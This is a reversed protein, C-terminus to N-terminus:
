KQIIIAGGDKVLQQGTTIVTENGKLGALIETRPEQEAGITVRIRRATDAAAVYVFNGKDDKLIAQTPITIANQHVDVVLLVNAFMGPKLVHNPNPIDIEVEMTRTSLDVAESFRTISGNFEKGPFADVTIVAKRGFAILPIDKERVSIIVKMQDIDMLTFLTANNATVVAGPDLFRKTIFGSFPATIRAYNLRTAANDRNAKAVKMTADANDLDQKSVLNQEFLDKSRVHNTRANEYTASAQSFQQFLETTDILALVQGSRVATGMDVFVRDLNGTVKAFVGAQQNPVINGTYQLTYKVTERTPAEVKVFPISQRRSDAADGRTLLKWAVIAALLIVAAIIYKLKRNM